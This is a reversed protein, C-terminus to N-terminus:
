EGNRELIADTYKGEGGEPDSPQGIGGGRHVLAEDFGQDMARMPYCDGLHWKGFIGTAYGQKKFVDAITDEQPHLGWSYAPHTNSAIGVRPAYCGTMLGARSPSCVSDAAYFETFRIGEAAM